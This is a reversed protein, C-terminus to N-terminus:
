YRWTVMGYVSRGVEMADDSLERPRFFEVHAGNLLNQGSVSLELHRTARWGIRADSRTYAPIGLATLSSVRYAATDFELRWPLDLYSRIQFQHQPNGHALTTVTTVDTSSPDTSPVLKLWSYSGTVKWWKALKLNVALEAGYTRANAQNSYESPIVLHPVPAAAFYPTGLETSFLNNYINYFTAVDLSMRPGPQIRYGLQFAALDESHLRSSTSFTVATPVASAGPTVTELSELGNNSISPTRVARSVAAWVTQPPAGPPHPTWALRLDPQVEFGSFPNHEFKTGLDLGLRDPVLDIDAAILAQFLNDSQHPRLFHISPSDESINVRTSRYGLGWLLSLRDTLPKRHQFDVDVVDLVPTALQENDSFHEYSAQLATTSGDALRHEWRTMLSGGNVSARSSFDEDYPPFLSATTLVRHLGSSYGEGEVTLSDRRSANWDMRFGGQVGSWDGQADGLDTPLITGRDFSKAYARYYGNAGMAGGYRVEGFGRQSNGGGASVLAGQTEKAPKTIINIVGNVANSGWMTAGPGRIVEIRDIDELMTDLANWFTGTTIESYVSRGDVLVLVKDAFRDNFGRASVAWTNTDIQAVDLGPALRLIEPITTAGSRRIDEQTIVYVAAAVQSLREQKRSVSTVQVNLLEELSKDALDAPRQQDQAGADVAFAMALSLVVRLPAGSPKPRLAAVNESDAGFITVKAM